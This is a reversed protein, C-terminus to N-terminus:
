ADRHHGWLDASYWEYFRMMFHSAACVDSGSDQYPTDAITNFTAEDM